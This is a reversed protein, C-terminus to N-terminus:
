RRPYQVALRHFRARSFLFADQGQDKLVKAVLTRKEASSRGAFKEPYVLAPARPPAPHDHWVQDILNKAVPVLQAGAKACSEEVRALGAPNHLKPDFGLKMGPKLNEALWARRRNM